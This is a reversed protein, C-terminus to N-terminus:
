AVGRWGRRGLSGRVLDGPLGAAAGGGVPRIASVPKMGRGRLREGEVLYWLRRLAKMARHRPYADHEALFNAQRTAVVRERLVLRYVKAFRRGYLGRADYGRECTLSGSCRANRDRGLRCPELLVDAKLDPNYRAFEAGTKPFYLYMPSADGYLRADLRASLACGFEPAKCAFVAVADRTRGIRWCSAVDAAVSITQVSGDTRPCVPEAVETSVYIRAVRRSVYGLLKTRALAHRMHQVLNIRVNPLDSLGREEPYRWDNGVLFLM